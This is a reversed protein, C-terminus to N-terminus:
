LSISYAEIVAKNKLLDNLVKQSVFTDCRILALAWSSTQSRNLKFSDINIGAQALLRGIEGIVGPKDQNKVLLLQGWAEMEIPNSNIMSIRLFSPDFAFGGLSVEKNNECEVVFKLASPYRDFDPDSQDCCEIGLSAFIRDANVHSVFSDVRGSAFGKMWARKIPEHQANALKGRYWIYTKKAQSPLIQAAFSGLKEALLTYSLLFPDEVVGLQPLNVPHDVHQGKLAKNIQQLLCLGVATQAEQTSAGIHPSTFVLPHQILDKRPEPEDQWTDIAVGSLHKTELADLLAQECVVGGRAANVLYSGKPLLSLLRADLM